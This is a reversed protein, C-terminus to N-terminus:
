PLPFQCDAKNTHRHNSPLPSALPALERERNELILCHPHPQSFLLIFSPTSSM